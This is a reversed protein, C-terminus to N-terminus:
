TGLCGAPPIFTAKSDDNEWIAISEVKLYDLKKSKFKRILEYALHESLNEATPESPLIIVKDKNFVPITPKGKEVLVEDSFNVFLAHDWVDIIENTMKKLDSFDIVMGNENLEECSVEVEIKLNHGHINKCLGKHCSLRHGMPVRFVKMVKYM